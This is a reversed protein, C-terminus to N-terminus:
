KTKEGVGGLPPLPPDPFFFYFLRTARGTLPPITSTVVSRPGFPRTCNPRCCSHRNSTKNNQKHRSGLVPTPAKPPITPKSNTHDKSPTQKDKKKHAGRKNKPGTRHDQKETGQRLDQRETRTKRNKNKRANACNKNKQEQDKTRQTRNKNKREKSDREQEKTGTRGNKEKQGRAQENTNEAVESLM